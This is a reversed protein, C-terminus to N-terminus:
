TTNMGSNISPKTKAPADDSLISSNDSVVLALTDAICSPEVGEGSLPYVNVAVRGMGQVSTHTSESFIVAYSAKCVM